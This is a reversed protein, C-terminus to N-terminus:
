SFDENGSETLKKEALTLKINLSHMFLILYMRGKDVAYVSGKLRCIFRQQHLSSNSEKLVYIHSLPRSIKGDNAEKVVYVFHRNIVTRMGEKEATESSVIIRRRRNESTLNKFLLDRM